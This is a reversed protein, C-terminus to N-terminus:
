STLAKPGVVVVTAAAALGAWRGAVRYTAWGLLAATALVFVYGTVEWLYEHGPLKRTALLWWMSTWWGFRPIEVPGHGRLLGGFVFASAADSNWYLARVLAPFRAAVVVVYALAPLAPLWELAQAAVGSKPLRRTSVGVALAGLRDGRGAPLGLVYLQM